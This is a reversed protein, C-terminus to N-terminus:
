VEAARIRFEDVSRLHGTVSGIEDPIRTAMTDVDSLSTDLLGSDQTGIPIDLNNEIAHLFIFNRLIRRPCKSTISSSAIRSTRAQCRCLKQM